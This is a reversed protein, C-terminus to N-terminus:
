GQYDQIRKLVEDEYRQAYRRLTDVPRVKYHRETVDGSRHGVLQKIVGDPTEALGEHHSIFTRRLDHLTVTVGSMKNISALARKPEILRGDKATSSSFVWENRKPLRQLLEIVYKTLPITRTDRNKTDVFSVIGRATDTHEWRLFLAESKRCGTFLLFQLFVAITERDASRHNNRQGNAAELWLKLDSEELLGQRPALRGWLRKRSLVLVPNTEILEEDMAWNFLTRLYRMAANAQAMGSSSNAISVHRDQVLRESIDAILRDHWAKFHYEMLWRYSKTTNPKLQLSRPSTLFRESLALLTTSNKTQQQRLRKKEANPDLGQGMQVIHQQALKRAAELQIEPYTGISVRRTKGGVRGQYVFIKRGAPTVKLGFGSLKDDWCFFDKERAVLSEVYTKTLNILARRRKSHHM